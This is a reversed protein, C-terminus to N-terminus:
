HRRQQRPVDYWSINMCQGTIVYFGCLQLIFMIKRGLRCKILFNVPPLCETLGVLFYCRQSASYMQRQWFFNNGLMSVTSDNSSDNGTPEQQQSRKKLVVHRSFVQCRLEMPLVLNLLSTRMFMWQSLSTPMMSRSLTRRRNSEVPWKRIPRMKVSVTIHGTWNLQRSVSCKNDGDNDGVGYIQDCDTQNAILM